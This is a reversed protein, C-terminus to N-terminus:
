GSLLEAQLADVSIAYGDRVKKEILRVIGAKIAPTIKFPQPYRAKRREIMFYRNPRTSRVVVDLQMFRMYAGRPNTTLVITGPDFPASMGDTCETLFDKFLRAAPRNFRKPDGAPQLACAEEERMIKSAKKREAPSHEIEWVFLPITLFGQKAWEEFSPVKASSCGSVRLSAQRAAQLAAQNRNHLDRHHEFAVDFASSGAAMVQKNKKLLDVQQKYDDYLAKNKVVICTDQGLGVGQNTFNASGIVITNPSILYLKWHVSANGRFDVWLRRKLLTKAADIFSPATFANITGLIVEVRNAADIAELLQTTGSAFASVITIDRERQKRLFTALDNENHLREM